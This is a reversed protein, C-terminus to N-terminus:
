VSCRAETIGLTGISNVKRAAGIGNERWLRVIFFIAAHFVWTKNSNILSVIQSVCAVVFFVRLKAQCFVTVQNVPLAEAYNQGGIAAIPVLPPGFGTCDKGFSDM